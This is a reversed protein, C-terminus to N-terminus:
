ILNIIGQILAFMGGAAIGELSDSTVNINGPYHINANLFDRHSAAIVRDYILILDRTPLVTTKNAAASIFTEMSSLTPLKGNQGLMYQPWLGVQKLRMRLAQEYVTRLIMGTAIPFTKYAKQRGVNKNSLGFLENIACLMGQHDPNAPHLKNEWSLTEFFDRPSPGGPAPGGVGSNPADSAPTNNTGRNQGAEGNPIYPSVDEDRPNDIDAPSTSPSTNDPAAEPSSQPQANNHEIVLDLLRSIGPVDSLTHRTTVVEKVITQEFVLLSIEDFLTQPLASINNYCDDVTMHLFERPSLKTGSPFEFKAKFIRWFPDTKLSIIEQSFEPNASQYKNYIATFFKYDRIDDKIARAKVGTIRALNDVSQGNGDNFSTAFFQKKALPKWEKVGEIHRKTMLALAIDRNELIDVEITTCNEILSDSAQPVRHAFGDPILERSLLMQLCCTRRNGEVVVYNGDEQLVVVREGQLLSGYENIGNALTCADEYTVLYKRINEQTRDNLIVFRPNKSDLLLDLPSINTTM